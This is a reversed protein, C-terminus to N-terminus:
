LDRLRVMIKKTAKDGFEVALLPALERLRRTAVRAQHLPEVKGALAPEVHVSVLACLPSVATRLPLDPAHYSPRPEDLLANSRISFHLSHSLYVNGM